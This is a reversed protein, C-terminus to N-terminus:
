KRSPRTSQETSRPFNHYRTGDGPWVPNPDRTPRSWRAGKAARALTSNHGNNLTGTQRAKPSHAGGGGGGGPLLRAVALRSPRRIVFYFAVLM